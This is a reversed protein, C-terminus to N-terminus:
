GGSGAAKTGPDADGAKGDYRARRFGGVEFRLARLRGSSKPLEIRVQRAQELAALFHADDEIFLAPGKGSDAQKGAWRTAPADDFAIQMACPAGCHFERQALLLYASRGWSPHDRLVLQADAPPAVQEEGVTAVRSDISASRQVGKGAPIAQYTWLGELRARERLADAKAQMDALTAAVAAAEPSDPFKQRLRDGIASAGTWTGQARAAEYDRALRAAEAHQAPSLESPDSTEPACAALGAVLALCAALRLAVGAIATCPTREPRTAGNTAATTTRM